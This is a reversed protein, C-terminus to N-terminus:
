TGGLAYSLTAKMATDLPVLGAPPQSDYALSFTLKLAFQKSLAVRLDFDGLARLDRPDDFRPQAYVTVGLRLVESLKVTSVLYSSLRHDLVEAGADPYDGQQLREYELMYAVGLSLNWTDKNVLTFRPGAGLLMRSALRRFLDRDYQVFAEAQVWDEFRHRYRLHEFHHSSFPEDSQFGLEGRLFLLLVDDGRRYRASASGSLLLFRTNGTRWDASGEVQVGLGERDEMFLPHVNVIQARAVAPSVLVGLLLAVGWGAKRADM